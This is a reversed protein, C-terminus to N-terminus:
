ECDAALRVKQRWGVAWLAVGNRGIKGNYMNEALAERAPQVDLPAGWRQGPVRTLLTLVMARAAAGREIQPKNGTLVYAVLTLDVDIVCGQPDDSEGGLMGVFVAPTRTSVATLEELDFRGQHPECRTLDPIMSNIELCINELLREVTITM